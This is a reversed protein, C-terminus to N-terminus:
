LLSLRSCLVVDSDILEVSHKYIEVLLGLNKTDVFYIAFITDTLNRHM